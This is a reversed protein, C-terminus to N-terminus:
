DLQRREEGIRSGRELAIEVPFNLSRIRFADFSNDVIPRLSGAAVAFSALRWLISTLNM